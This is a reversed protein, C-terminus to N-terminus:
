MGKGIIEYLKSFFPVGMNQVSDLYVFNDKGYYKKPCDTNIGFGYVEYGVERLKGVVRILNNQFTYQSGQGAYPEGDSLSLIVKRKEKRNRMRYAMMELAEGDIHNNYSGISGLRTRIAMYNEAFAKYVKCIMPNSRTIFSPINSPINGTTSFGAIEFPINLKTLCEGLAIALCRIPEANMSGSEDIVVSVCTNMNKGDRVKYFVKKSLSKAVMHLKRKDLRGRDRDSLKRTRAVSQLANEIYRTMKSVSCTVKNRANEYQVSNESPVRWDDNTTDSVYHEDDDDWSEQSADSTLRELTKSLDEGGLEDALEKLIEADSIENKSASCNEEDELKSDSNSDSKGDESDKNKAGNKTDDESEENEEDSDSSDNDDTLKDLEKDLDSQQPSSQKDSKQQEGSSQSQEQQESNKDNQEQSENQQNDQQNQKDERNKEILMQVIERSLDVVNWFGDRKKMNGYGRWSHFKDGILEVYEQAKQSPIWSVTIAEDKFCLYILAQRIDGVEKVYAPNAMNVNWESAIIRNGENLSPGAGAWKSGAWDEIRRDEIANVVDKLLVITESEGKKDIYSIMKSIPESLIAHATEHIDCCMVVADQKKDLFGFPPSGIVRNDMDCYPTEGPKLWVRKWNDVEDFMVSGITKAAKKGAVMLSM